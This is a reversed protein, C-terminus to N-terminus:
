YELLVAAVCICGQQVVNYRNTVNNHRRAFVNTKHLPQIIGGILSPLGLLENSLVHSRHPSIEAFLCLAAQDPLAPSHALFFALCSSQIVNLIGIIRWWVSRYGYYKM